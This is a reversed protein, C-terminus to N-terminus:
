AGDGAVRAFSVAVAAAAEDVSRVVFVKHGLRQLAAMVAVQEATPKRKPAKIELFLTKGGPLMVEIDPWGVVMGHHKAKAIQRAIGAGSMGFENPSHHIMARPLALRLYALVDLHIPGEVSKPKRRPKPIIPTM